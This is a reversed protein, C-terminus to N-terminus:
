YYHLFFYFNSLLFQLLLWEKNEDHFCGTRGTGSSQRLNIKIPFLSNNFFLFIVEETVANKGPVPNLTPLHTKSRGFLNIKTDASLAM